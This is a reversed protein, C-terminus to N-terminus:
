GWCFVKGLAKRGFRRQSNGSFLLLVMTKRSLEAARDSPKEEIAGGDGEVSPGDFDIGDM